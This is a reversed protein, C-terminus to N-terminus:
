ANKDLLHQDVLYPIDKQKKIIPDFPPNDWLEVPDAPQVDYHGYVLVTPASKSIIKDAYVIPHGATEVIEINECGIKEFNDKLFIAADKVDQKFTSDASVSKIKLLDFLETLIRDSNKSIFQKIEKM